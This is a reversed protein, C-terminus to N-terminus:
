VKGIVRRRSLGDARCSTPRSRSVGADIVTKGTDRDAGFIAFDGKTM